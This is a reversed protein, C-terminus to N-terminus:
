LRAPRHSSLGDQWLLVLGTGHQGVGSTLVSSKDIVDIGKPVIELGLAAQRAIRQQSISPIQVSNGFPDTPTIHGIIEPGAHAVETMIEDIQTVFSQRRRTDRPM